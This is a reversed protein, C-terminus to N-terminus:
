FSVFRKWVSDVATCEGQTNHYTRAILALCDYSNTERLVELYAALITAPLLEDPLSHLIMRGPWNGMQPLRFTSYNWICISVM